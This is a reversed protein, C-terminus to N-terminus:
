SEFDALQWTPCYKSTFICPAWGLQCFSRCLVNVEQSCPLPNGHGHPIGLLQNTHLLFDWEFPHNQPVGMEPFRGLPLVLYVTIILKHRKYLQFISFTLTLLENSVPMRKWIASCQISFPNDESFGKFKSSLPRVIRNKHSTHSIYEGRIPEKGKRETSTEWNWGGDSGEQFRWCMPAWLALAPLRRVTGSTARGHM